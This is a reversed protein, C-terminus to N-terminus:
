EKESRRMGENSEKAQTECAESLAHGNFKGPFLKARRLWVAHQKMLRVRTLGVEM